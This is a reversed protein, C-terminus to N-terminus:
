ETAGGMHLADFRCMRQCLGCANCTMVDVNPYGDADAVLAPCMIRLCAKCRTCRDRDLRIAQEPKGKGQPILACPRRAIVVSPGDEDLAAAIAKQSAYTDAPDVVRVSSVGIAKCLAELDVTASPELRLNRGTAPNQQHGTMGTISNDLIVVVASSGNYVCNILGTIGSHIFTSDGIVAVTKSETGLVQNFGHAMGISAGMCICTDMADTPPLSGLTYCGIDGAVLAGLRKLALFLGKHPCGACMVPPRGPADPLNLRSIAPEPLSGAGFACRIMDASYEGLLSALGQWSAITAVPTDAQEAVRADEVRLRCISEMADAFFAKGSCRIGAAKLEGELFPDLEEAVILRGVERAFDRIAELPLPWIMGLKFLSVGPLAERVTQAVIGSAVVGISRDGWIVQHCGPNTQLESTEVELQAMRSEVVQHRGIAMAPMMVYKNRNKTYPRLAVKIREAGVVPARTHSIRTSLRILVPTDLRESLDFAARTMDLCEQSDAPEFMPLKAARAYHRSDQENQSSHMGPDDAVVIVLGANIGTYSATFLPDAAVNLGVHKMCSMARAGAVAAGLASELAVKENPAWECHVQRDYAAVAESIETSPTGPYSSVFRVGAALAGWAVAENGLLIESM